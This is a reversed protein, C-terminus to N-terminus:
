AIIGDSRYHQRSLTLEEREAEINRVEQLVRFFGEDFKKRGERAEVRLEILKGLRHNSRQVSMCNCAPAHDRRRTVIPDHGGPFALDREVLNGEPRRNKGSAHLHQSSTDPLPIRLCDQVGAGHISSLLRQAEPQDVLHDSRLLQDLNRLLLSAAEGAMIRASELADFRQGAARDGHSHAASLSGRDSLKRVDPVRLCGPLLELSNPDPFSQAAAYHHRYQRYNALVKKVYDRTERYTISEVFEDAELSGFQREWRAVAQEGGNYAALAKLQDGRYTHLLRELHAVGLAINTEPEYLHDVPSRRDLRRAIGEATSPLLQMLGRANAHSRAAPDFMSEQRMLALVLLPDLQTRITYRTVLPWFALPYLIDMDESQNERALRIADRYGDVTPYATTLFTLVQPLPPNTQEFARLEARALHQLGAGQLERARILHYSDTVGPPPPGINRPLQRPAIDSAGTQHQGLRQEAWYAYYSEPASDLLQRYLRRATRRDGARELARARWYHAGAAGEVDREGVLRAFAAAADRWRGQRYRVWGIQWGAERGLPSRPQSRALREYAAIAREAEGAAQDIRALAYLVAPARAHRPYHHRFRLFGKKAETDSNRNWLLSSYRYLAEPAATSEPFSHFVEQLILLAQDFNGDGKEVDASLLLLSPRDLPPAANLLRAAITRAGTFDSERVLLRLEKELDSPEQPVLSPDVGRLDVVRQKARAALESGPARQRISMFRAHAGGTDGSAADIEALESTAALAVEDTATKLAAALFTQASALDGQARRLRARQLAGRAAYLSRPHAASLRALLADARAANGYDACIVALFYLCYDELSPYSSLLTQLVPVARAFQQEEFLRYAEAFM